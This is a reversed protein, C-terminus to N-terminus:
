LSFHAGVSLGAAVFTAPDPIDGSGDINTFGEFSANTMRGVDIGFRIDVALKREFDGKSLNGIRYGLGGKLVAPTWIRMTTSDQNYTFATLLGVGVEGYLGNNRAQAIELMVPIQLGLGNCIDAGTHCLMHGGSVRFGGTVGVHESFYGGIRFEIGVGATPTKGGEILPSTPALALLNASVVLGTPDVGGKAATVPTSAGPRDVGVKDDYLSSTTSTTSVAPAPAAPGSDLTLVPEPLTSSAVEVEPEKAEEIKKPKAAAKKKKTKTVAPKAAPTEDAFATSGFATLLSFAVIGVLSTRM